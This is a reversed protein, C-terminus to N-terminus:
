VTFLMISIIQRESNLRDGGGAGRETEKEGRPRGRGGQFVPSVNIIYHYHIVPGGYRTFM